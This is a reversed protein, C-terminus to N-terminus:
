FNQRIELAMNVNTRDALYYRNLEVNASMRALVDFPGVFRKVEGGISTIADVPREIPRGSRYVIPHRMERQVERTLFATVRGNTDFRDFAIVQASGAGPGVNAGLMQGRETHGQRLVGHTYTQGESQGISSARSAATPEYSFLEGRV